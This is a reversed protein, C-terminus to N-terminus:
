ITKGGLLHQKVIDLYPIQPFAQQEIVFGHERIYDLPMSKKGMDQQFFRILDIAPLLYTEQYSSFHILVFCIGKQELVQEMHQIQHSHFNKM